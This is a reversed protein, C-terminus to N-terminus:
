FGPQGQGRQGRSTGYVLVTSGKSLTRAVLDQDTDGTRVCGHSAPYGPVSAAGHVAWGEDFYLPKYLSGLPAEVIGHEERYVTFRGTPTYAVATGGGTLEYTEGSGTSVNLITVEGKRSVLFAIQRDLDVEIRPRPGQRRPGDGKPKPLRARVQPGAVGDRGLGEHKEFAMVASATAAGYAGGAPGPRYGLRALRKQLKKVARGKSGPRLLPEGAGQDA